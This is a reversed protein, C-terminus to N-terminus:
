NMVKRHLPVSSSIPFCFMSSAEESTGNVRHALVCARLGEAGPLLNFILKPQWKDPNQVHLPHPFLKKLFVGYGKQMHCIFTQYSMPLDTM